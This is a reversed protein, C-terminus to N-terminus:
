AGSKAFRYIRKWKKTQGPRLTDKLFVEPCYATKEAYLAFRDLRFDGSVDIRQGTAPNAAFLRNAAAPASIKSDYIVGKPIPNIISLRAKSQPGSIKLWDNNRLKPAVPFAAEVYYPPTTTRGSFSFWNHNYQSFTIPVNGSNRLEYEIVLTTLKPLVRYRKTYAYGYKNALTGNQRVTVVDGQRQVRVPLLQKIKYPLWFDYDRKNNRVLKGVGIKLFNSGAPTGEFGLVGVGDIGFEDILGHQSLFTSGKLSVQNVMATNDFRPGFTPILQQPRATIDVRFNSDGLVFSRPETRPQAFSTAGNAFVLPVILLSTVKLNM